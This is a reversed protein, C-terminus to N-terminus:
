YSQNLMVTFQTSSASVFVIDPKGNRDFDAVTFRSNDTASSDGSPLFIPKAFGRHGDGLLVGLSASISDSCIVDPLGDGNLDFAQCHSLGGLTPALSIPAQETYQGNGDAFVPYALASLISSAVLDNRGDQNFDGVATSFPRYDTHVWDVRGIFSDTSSRDGFLVAVRQGVLSSLVFDRTGDGNMDHGSIEVASLMIDVPAAPVLAGSGTGFLRYLKGASSDTAFVDDHSDSDFKGVILASPSGGIAASQVPLFTGDRNSLMTSVSSKVVSMVALDPAGDENFDGIGLRNIAFGVPTVLPASFGGRGNGLYVAVSGATAQCLVLDASGDLNIDTAILDSVIPSVATAKTSFSLTGTFYSFLTSDKVQTGDPNRVSVEVKGFAAPNAPLSVRLEGDSVFETPAAAIGAIQVVAGPVFKRGLVKLLIGGSVPGVAPEVARLSLRTTECVQSALNCSEDQSCADPNVVCNKPNIREPWLESSCSLICLFLPLWRFSVSLCGFPFLGASSRVTNRDM